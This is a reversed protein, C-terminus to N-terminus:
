ILPNGNNINSTDINLIKCLGSLADETLVYLESLSNRLEKIWMWLLINSICLIGILIYLVIM